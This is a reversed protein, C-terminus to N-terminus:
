PTQYWTPIIRQMNEYWSLVDKVQNLMVEIEEQGFPIAWPVSSLTNSSIYLALLRWFEEPVCSDFYGDVLGSAFVPAAQACWVIRNFEEWPDGFDYKDFDIIQLQGASDVMMNGIHYDGHQFSQPRGTLLHRNEQLYRLFHEAGEYKLPCAEYTRIKRDIKANFYDEWRPLGEPAPITHLAKLIRGAELGYTYQKEKSLSPIVAEAGEGDVWTQLLYAGEECLGYELSTSIPLNLEQVRKHMAFLQERNQTREPSSIRLLYKTGSEDIVCYKKDGSWGKEIPVKSIFNLM